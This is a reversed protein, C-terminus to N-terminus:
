ENSGIVSFEVVFVGNPMVKDLSQPVEQTSITIKGSDGPKATEPLAFDFVFLSETGEVRNPSYVMARGRPEILASDQADFIWVAPNGPLQVQLPWGLRILQAPAKSKARGDINHQQTFIYPTKRAENDHWTQEQAFTPMASFVGLAMLIAGHSLTKFRIM